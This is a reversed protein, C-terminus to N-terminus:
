APNAAVLQAKQTEYIVMRYLKIVFTEAQEEFLEKLEDLMEDASAQSALKELVFTTVYEDESGLLEKVKKKVFRSIPKDPTGLKHKEFLNWGVKYSFVGAKETPISDAIKRMEEAMDVKKPEEKTGSKDWRERRTMEPLPELNFVPLPARPKVEEDEKFAALVAPNIGTRKKKAPPQQVAGGKEMGAAETPSDPKPPGAKAAAIM